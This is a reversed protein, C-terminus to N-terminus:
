IVQHHRCHCQHHLTSNSSNGESPMKSPLKTSPLKTCWWKICVTHLVAGSLRTHGSRGSAFVEIAPLLPVPLPPLHSFSGRSLGWYVAWDARQRGWWLGRMGFGAHSASIFWFRSGGALCDSQSKFENSENGREIRRRSNGQKNAPPDGGRKAIVWRLQEYWTRLLQIAVDGCWKIPLSAFLMLVLLLM